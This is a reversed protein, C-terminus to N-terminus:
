SCEGQHLLNLCFSNGEVGREGGGGFWGSYSSRMQQPQRLSGVFGPLLPSSLVFM